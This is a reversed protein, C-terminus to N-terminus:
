IHIERHTYVPHVCITALARQFPHKKYSVFSKGFCTGVHIYRGFLIEPLQFGAVSSLQTHTEVEPSPIHKNGRAKKREDWIVDCKQNREVVWTGTGTQRKQTTSGEEHTLQVADM